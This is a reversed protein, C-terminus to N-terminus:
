PDAFSAVGAAKRRDRYNKSKHAQRSKSIPSTQCNELGDLALQFQKRFARKASIPSSPQSDCSPFGFDSATPMAQRLLGGQTPILGQSTCTKQIEQFM